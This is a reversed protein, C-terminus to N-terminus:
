LDGQMARAISCTHSLIRSMANITELRIASADLNTPDASTLSHLHRVHMERRLQNLWQRRSLVEDAIALDQSALGALVQQLLRSVEGHYTVIDKWESQPLAIQKRRKRRALRMLQHDIVDGIAELETSVHLLMLERETQEETLAADNLQILYHKISNELEDLQDELAGIRKPLDKVGDEFVRISLQLMETALDAMRLVEHMAQGLAVAPLTLMQPDLYRSGKKEAAEPEPLLMTSFNSMRSALPVFLVALILNFGLHAIAVEAAPNLRLYTLVAALPNLLLMATTVGIFRTAVYIVGLRRGTASGQNIAMFLPTLTTGLNAGLTVALAATLPLANGGALVM